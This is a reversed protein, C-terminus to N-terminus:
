KMDRMTPGSLTVSLHSLKQQWRLKIPTLPIVKAKAMLIYAGGLPPYFKSGIWELFRLKQYIEKQFFPPRFLLNRQKVLEFDVLKLWKIIKSPRIFHGSWPMEKNKKLYKKIGWLSLPNFGIVIIHGEPKVARCAETLLQHPNDTFELIHPLIVLDISGPFVPLSYYDTEVSHISSHRFIIPGMMVQHPMLSSALLDHQHPVGILLTHKGFYEMLISSLLRKEEAM